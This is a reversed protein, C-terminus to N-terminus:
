RTVLQLAIGISELQNMLQQTITVQFKRSLFDIKFHTQPDHLTMTLPISGKNRKIINVLSERFEGTLMTTSISLKLNKVYTEAVNGM